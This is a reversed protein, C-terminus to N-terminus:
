TSACGGPTGGSRLTALDALADDLTTVDVLQLGA